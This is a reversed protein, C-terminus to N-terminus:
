PEFPSAAALKHGIPLDNNNAEHPRALCRDGVGERTFKATRHDIQIFQDRPLLAPIWVFYNHLGAFFSEALNFRLRQLFHENFVDRANNGHTPAGPRNCFIALQDSLM